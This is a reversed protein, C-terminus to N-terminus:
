PLHKWNKRQRIKGAMSYSIGFKNGIDYLTGTSARIEPIDAETLKAMGHRQGEARTGHM